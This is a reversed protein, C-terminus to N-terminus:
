LAVIPLKSKVQLFIICFFSSVVDSALRQIHKGTFHKKLNKSQVTDLSSHLKPKATPQGAELSHKLLTDDNEVSGLKTDSQAESGLKLSNDGREMSDSLKNDSQTGCVGGLKSQKLLNHDKLKNNCPVEGGLKIRKLLADKSEVSGCPKTDSPAEDKLESQKLLANDSETSGSPEDSLAEKELKIESQVKTDDDNNQQKLVNQLAPDFNLWHEQASEMTSSVFEDHLDASDQMITVSEAM